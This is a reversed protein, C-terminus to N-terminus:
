LFVSNNGSCIKFHINLTKFWTQGRVLSTTHNVGVSSTQIRAIRRIQRHKGAQTTKNTAPTEQKMLKTNVRSDTARSPDTGVSGRESGAQSAGPLYLLYM